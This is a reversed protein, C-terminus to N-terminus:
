GNLSGIYTDDLLMIVRVDLGSLTNGTLRSWADLDLFTLPLPGSFGHGRRRHLETFVSWQPSMEKPFSPGILDQPKKGTAKYVQELHERNSV